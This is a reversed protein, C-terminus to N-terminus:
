VLMLVNQIMDDAVDIIRAAAQYARQAAVLNVMEEDMNVGSEQQIARSLMAEVRESDAALGQSTQVMSGLGTAENGFYNTLSLDGLAAHTEYALAAINFAVQGDGANPVPPPGASALTEAAAVLSVDGGPMGGNYIAPNIGLTEADIVGDLDADTGTFLAGGPNGYLDYGTAHIANVETMLTDAMLDLRQAWDDLVEVGDILARLSGSGPMVPVGDLDLTVDPDTATINLTARTLGDASVLVEGDLLVEGDESVEIPVLESLETMLRSRRDLIDHSPDLHRAQHIQENLNQIRVALENVNAVDDAISGSAAGGSGSAVANRFDTIRNKMAAFHVTLSVGREVMVTRSPLNSPNTAVDQWADWFNQLMHDLSADESGSNLLAELASLVDGHEEHYSLNSKEDMRMTELTHNYHRIVGEVTVGTDQADQRVRYLGEQQSPGTGLVTTRRHYGETDVNSLNQGTVSIREQHSLVGSRGVNLIDFLSSM